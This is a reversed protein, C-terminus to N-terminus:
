SIVRFVYKLRCVLKAGVCLIDICYLCHKSDEMWVTSQLLTPYM